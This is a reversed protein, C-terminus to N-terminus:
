NGHGEREVVVSIVVEGLVEVLAAVVELVVEAVVSVVEEGAVPVVAAVWAV